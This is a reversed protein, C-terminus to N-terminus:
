SADKKLSVLKERIEPICIKCKAKCSHFSFVDEVTTSGADFADKISKDNLAHCVCVFM